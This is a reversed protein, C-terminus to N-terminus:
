KSLRLTKRRATSWRITEESGYCSFQAAVHNYLQQIEEGNLDLDSVVQHLRRQLLTAEQEYLGEVKFDLAGFENIIKSM